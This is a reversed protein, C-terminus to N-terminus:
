VNYDPIDPSDPTRFRPVHIFGIGPHEAISPIGDDALMVIRKRFLNNYTDPDISAPVPAGEGALGQRISRDLLVGMMFLKTDYDSLIGGGSNIIHEMIVDKVSGSTHIAQLAQELTITNVRRGKRDRPGQPTIIEPVLREAAGDTSSMILEPSFIGPLIEDLMPKFFEDLGRQDKTTLIGQVVTHNPDDKYKDHIYKVAIPWAPNWIWRDYIDRLHITKLIDHEEDSLKELKKRTLHGAHIKEDTELVVGAVNDLDHNLIIHDIGPDHQFAQDVGGTISMYIEVQQDFAEQMSMRMKDPIHEKDMRKAQKDWYPVFDNRLQALVPPQLLESGIHAAPVLLREPDFAAKLTGRRTEDAQRVGPPLLERRNWPQKARSQRELTRRDVKYPRIANEKPLDKPLDSEPM